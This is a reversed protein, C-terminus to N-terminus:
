AQLRTLSCYKTCVGRAGLLWSGKRGKELSGVKKLLKAFLHKNL